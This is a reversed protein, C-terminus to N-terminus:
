KRGKLSKKYIKFPELGMESRRKDLNEFEKIAKPVLRGNENRYFQTGYLQPKGKNVLIRDTLYAINAMAVDNRKAAEKMRKLCYEQFKIDGDAHQVLLWALHSVRKGVLSITPWGVEKVIKKMKVLNIRDIKKVEEVNLRNKAYIKRVKQDLRAMELIKKALKKNKM